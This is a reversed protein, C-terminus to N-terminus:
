LGSPPIIEHEAEEAPAQGAPPPAPETESDGENGNPAGGAAAAISAETADTQKRLMEVVGECASYGAHNGITDGDSAFHM